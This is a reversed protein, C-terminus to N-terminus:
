VPWGKRGKEREVGLFSGVPEEQVKGIRSPCSTGAATYTAYPISAIALLYLMNM